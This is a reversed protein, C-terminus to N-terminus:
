SVMVQIDRVETEYHIFIRECSEAKWHVLELLRILTLDALTTRLLHCESQWIEYYTM